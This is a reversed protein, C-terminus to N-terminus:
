SLIETLPQTTKLPVCWVAYLKNLVNKNIPYWPWKDSKLQSVMSKIQCYNDAPWSLKSVRDLLVM